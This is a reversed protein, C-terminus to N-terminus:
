QSKFIKAYHNIKITQDFRKSAIYKQLLKSPYQGKKKIFIIIVNKNDGKIILKTCVSHPKAALSPLILQLTANYDEYWIIRM